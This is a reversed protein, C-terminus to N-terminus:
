AGIEGLKVITEKQSIMLAGIIMIAGLIVIGWNGAISQLWTMWSGSAPLVTKGAATDQVAGTTSAPSAAPATGQIAQVQNIVQALSNAYNTNSGAYGSNQLALAFGSVNNAYQPGMIGMNTLTQEYAAVGSNLDAYNAVSGGPSVNGPNNNGAAFGPQLGWGTELAWQGLVEPQSLGLNSAANAAAPGYQNIFALEQAPTATTM